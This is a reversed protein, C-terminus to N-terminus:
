KEFKETLCWEKQKDPCEREFHTRRECYFCGLLQSNGEARASSIIKKVASPNFRGNVFAKPDGQLERCLLLKQKVLASTSANHLEESVHGVGDYDTMVWAVSLFGILFSFGKSNWGSGDWIVGFVESAPPKNPTLVLLTASIVM